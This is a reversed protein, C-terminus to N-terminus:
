EVNPKVKDGGFISWFGFPASVTFISKGTSFEDFAVAVFKGQQSDAETCGGFIEHKVNVPITSVMRVVVKFGKLLQELDELFNAYDSYVEDAAGMAFADM